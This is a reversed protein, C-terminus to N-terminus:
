FIIIVYMEKIVEIFLMIVYFIIVIFKYYFEM